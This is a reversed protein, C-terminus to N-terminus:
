IHILSLFVFENSGHEGAPRAEVSELFTSDREWQELVRAELAPFRLQPDVDPYSM